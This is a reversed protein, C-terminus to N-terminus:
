ITEASANPNKEGVSYRGRANGQDSPIEENDYAHNGEWRELDIPYIGHRVNYATEILSIICRSTDSLCISPKRGPSSSIMASLKYLTMSIIPVLVSDHSLAPFAATSRAELVRRSRLTASTTSCSM